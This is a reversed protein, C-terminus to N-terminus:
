GLRAVAEPNAYKWCYEGANIEMANVMTRREGLGLYVILPANGRADFKLTVDVGGRNCVTWGEGKAELALWVVGNSQGEVVLDCGPGGLLLRNRNPSLYRRWWSRSRNITDIDRSSWTPSSASIGDPDRIVKMEGQVLGKPRVLRVIYLGYASALVALAPGGFLLIRRLYRIVLGVKDLYNFAFAGTVASPHVAGGDVEFELDVAYSGTTLEQRRRIQVSAIVGPGAPVNVLTAESDIGDGEATIRVDVSEGSNSSLRIPISVAENQLWDGHEVAEVGAVVVLPLTVEFQFRRDISPLGIGRLSPAGELHIELSGSQDVPAEFAMAEGVEVPQMEVSRGDPHVVTAKVQSWEAAWPVEDVVYELRIRLPETENLEVQSGDEPSVTLSPRFIRIQFPMSADIEAIPFGDVYPTIQVRITHTVSDVPVFRAELEKQGAVIEVNKPPTGSMASVTVIANSWNVVALRGDVPISAFISVPDGHDVKIIESHVPRFQLEPSETVIPVTIARQVSALAVGRYDAEASLEIIYEGSTKAEVWAVLDSGEKSVPLIAVDEGPATVLFKYSKWDVSIENGELSYGLVVRLLQGFQLNIPEGTSPSIEVIPEDIQIAISKTADTDFRTAGADSEFSGTATLHFEFIGSTPPLFRATYEDNSRIPTVTGDSDTVEWSYSVATVRAEHLLSGRLELPMGFALQADAPEWHITVAPADGVQVFKPVPPSGYVIQQGSKVIPDLRYVGAIMTAEFRGFFAEGIRDLELSRPSDAGPIWIQVSVSFANLDPLEADSSRPELQIEIPIPDTRPVFSSPQRWSVDFAPVTIMGILVCSGEGPRITWVGPAPDRVVLVKHGPDERSTLAPEPAGPPPILILSAVTGTGVVALDIESTGIPVTIQAELCPLETFVGRRFSGLLELYAPLLDEPRDIRRHFGHGITAIQDLLPYNEPLTGRFSLAFLRGGTERFVEVTNLVEDKIATKTRDDSNEWFKPRLEGDTLFLVVKQSSASKSLEGVASLLAPRYDTDGGPPYASRLGTKMRDRDQESSITGLGPPLIRSEDDFSVVVVDSGEPLLDIFLRAALYRHNAPDTDLMSGSNDLVIAVAISDDTEAL